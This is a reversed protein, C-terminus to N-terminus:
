KKDGGTTGLLSKFIDQGEQSGGALKKALIASRNDQVTIVAGNRKDQVLIYVFEGSPMDKSVEAFVFAAGYPGELNFRVRTRKTGDDPSTYETHEIFNRRGERHGGHDRGYTKISDGFRRQVEPHSRIESSARDFVANPSMKTPLLEKGIYYACVSAFAFAGGWFLLRTGAVVKEGPTLVLEQSTPDESGNNTNKSSEKSSSSSTSRLALRRMAPNYFQLLSTENSNRKWLQSSSSPSSTSTLSRLLIRNVNNPARTSMVTSPKARHMVACRLISSSRIM